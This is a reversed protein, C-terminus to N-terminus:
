KRDAIFPLKQRYNLLADKSLEIQRVEQGTFRLMNRGSYDYVCSHGPYAYDFPDMGVRNVGIVYAQNELARAKLLADWHDIREAPWNAVVLLVDYDTNNFSAYPFRLDYCIIMRCKFGNIVADVNHQGAKFNADEDSLAFLHQKDYMAYVDKDNTLVFRNHRGHASEIMLSGGVSCSHKKALKRMFAISEGDMKEAQEPHKVSFATQFMEPLLILETNQLAQCLTEIKQFNMSKDMWSIDFQVLSVNLTSM